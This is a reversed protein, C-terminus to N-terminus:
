GQSIRITGELTFGEMLHRYQEGTIDRAENPTMPWQYKGDTLRKYLLLYGDGGDYLLAKIRDKRTGCFLFMTGAELPDMGYNLRVAAALGDIGRRLDTRGCAIIVKKIGYAEKLM